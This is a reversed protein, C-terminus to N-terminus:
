VEAEADIIKQAVTEIAKVAAMTEDDLIMKNVKRNQAIADGNDDIVDYTLAMRKGNGDAIIVVGKLNKMRKVEM